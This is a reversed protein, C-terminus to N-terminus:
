AAGPKGAKKYKRHAEHLDHKLIQRIWARLENPCNGTFKAFSKQATLLTEQVVDSAGLKPKVQDDLDQNAILLLYERCEQILVGVAHQDGDRAANVLRVFRDEPTENPGNDASGVVGSIELHSKVARGSMSIENNDFEKRFDRPLQGYRLGERLDARRWRRGGRM